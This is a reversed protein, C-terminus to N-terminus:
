LYINTQVFQMYNVIIQEHKEAQKNILDLAVYNSTHM